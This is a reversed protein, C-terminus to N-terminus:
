KKSSGSRAPTSGPRPAVEPDKRRLEMGKETDTPGWRPENRDSYGREAIVVKNEYVTYSYMVYEDDEKVAYTCNREVSGGQFRSEGKLQFFLNCDPLEDLDTRPEYGEFPVKKKYEGAVASIDYMTYLVAEITGNIGDTLRFFRQSVPNGSGDTIEEYLWAADSYLNEWVRVIHAERIAVSTDRKAINRNDFDGTMWTLLQKMEKSFRPPTAALTQGTEGPQPGGASPVRSGANYPSNATVGTAGPSHTASEGKRAPSAAVGPTTCSLALTLLLVPLFLTPKM